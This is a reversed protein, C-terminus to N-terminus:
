PAILEKKVTLGVVQAKALEFDRVLARILKLFKFTPCISAHLFKFITYDLWCATVINIM